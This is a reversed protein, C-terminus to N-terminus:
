PVRVISHFIEPKKKQLRSLLTSGELLNVCFQEHHDEAVGKGKAYVTCLVGIIILRDPETDIGAQLSSHGAAPGIEQLAATEHLPFSQIVNCPVHM